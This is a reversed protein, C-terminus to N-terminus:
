ESSQHPDDVPQDPDDVSVPGISTVVLHFKPVVPGELTYEKKAGPADLIDDLLPYRDSEDVPRMREPLPATRERGARSVMSDIANLRDFASSGNKDNAEAMVERGLHERALLTVRDKMGLPEGARYSDATAQLVRWVEERSMTEHSTVFELDQGIEPDESNVVVVKRRSVKMKELTAIAGRLQQSPKDHEAARTWLRALAEVQQERPLSPLVRGFYDGEVAVRLKPAVAKTYEEDNRLVVFVAKEVDQYTGAGADVQEKMWQYLSSRFKEWDMKDSM